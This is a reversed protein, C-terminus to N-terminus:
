SAIKRFLIALHPVSNPLKKKMSVEISFEPSCTLCHRASDSSIAMSPLLGKYNLM